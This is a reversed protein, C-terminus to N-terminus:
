EAPIEVSGDCIASLRESSALSKNVAYNLALPSDPDIGGGRPEAWVALMRLTRNEPRQIMVEVSFVQLLANVGASGWNAERTFTLIALAATEEGELTYMGHRFHLDMPYVDIDALGLVPAPDVENDTFLITDAYQKPDFGDAFPDLPTRVRTFSNTEWADEYTSRATAYERAYGDWDGSFVTDQDPRLLLQESRKWDCAMDSVSVVGAANSVERDAMTGQGDVQIQPDLPLLAVDAPELLGLTFADTTDLTASQDILGQGDEIVWSLFGQIGVEFVEDTDFFHQILHSTSDDLGEPAPPPPSCAGAMTVVLALSPIRRSSM